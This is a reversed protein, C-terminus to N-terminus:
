AHLTLLVKDRKLLSIVEPTVVRFITKRSYNHYGKRWSHPRNMPQAQPMPTRACHQTPNEAQRSPLPEEDVQMRHTSTDGQQSLSMSLAVNLNHNISAQTARRLKQQMAAM